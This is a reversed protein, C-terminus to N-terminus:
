STYQHGVFSVISVKFHFCNPQSGFRTYFHRSHLTTQPLLLPMMEGQFRWSHSSSSSAKGLVPWTRGLSISTRLSRHYFSRSRRSRSIKFFASTMKESFPYHRAITEDILVASRPTNLLHAPYQLHRAAPKIGPFITYFAGSRKFRTTKIHRDFPNILGTFFARAAGLDRPSHPFFTPRYAFISYSSSHTGQPLPRNDSTSKTLGRVRVMGKRHSGVSEM